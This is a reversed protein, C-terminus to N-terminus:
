DFTENYLEIFEDDDLSNLYYEYRDPNYTDDDHYREDYNQMLEEFMDGITPQNTM